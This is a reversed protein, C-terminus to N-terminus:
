RPDERGPTEIAAPGRTDDLPSQTPLGPLANGGSLLALYLLAAAQTPELRLGELLGGPEPLPAEEELKALIAAELGPPVPIDELGSM